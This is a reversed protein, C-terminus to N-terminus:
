GKYAASRKNRFDVITNSLSNAFQSYLTARQINRIKTLLFEQPLRDGIKTPVPVQLKKGRTRMNVLGLRPTSSKIFYYFDKYAKRVKLLQLLLIIVQLNKQNSFGHKVFNTTLLNLFNNLKNKPYTINSFESTILM